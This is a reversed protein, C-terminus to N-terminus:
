RQDRRSRPARPRDSRPNFQSEDLVLPDLHRARQGLAMALVGRRPPRSSTNPAPSAVDSQPPKTREDARFAARLACRHFTSPTLFNAALWWSANAPLHFSIAGSSRAYLGRGWVDVVTREVGGGGLTTPWPAMGPREICESQMQAPPATGQGPTSDVPGRRGNKEGQGPVKRCSVFRRSALGSVPRREAYQGVPSCLCHGSVGVVRLPVAAGVAGEHGPPSSRRGHRPATRETRHRRRERCATPARATRLSYPVLGRKAPGSRLCHLREWM